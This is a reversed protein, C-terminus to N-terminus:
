GIQIVNENVIINTASFDAFTVDNAELNGLIITNGSITTNGKVKINGSVDLNNNFSIDNEVILKNNLFVDGNINLNNLVDLGSNLSVDGNVLLKNTIDVSSKLLVDGYVNLNNTVDSPLLLSNNLLIFIDGLPIEVITDRLSSRSLISFSFLSNFGNSM